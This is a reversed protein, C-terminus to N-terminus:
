MNPCAEDTNLQVKEGPRLQRVSYGIRKFGAEIQAPTTKDADYKVTVTQAPINTQIEKVGRVFRVNKKIKLECNECHMQPLTTFIVTKIDRAAATLTILLAAAM